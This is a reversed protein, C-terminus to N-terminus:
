TRSYVGKQTSTLTAFIDDWGEPTWLYVELGPVAALLTLWIRQEDTVQRGKLSRKLEAFIIRPPKLLVLDPFGFHGDMRTVWTGRKTMAPRFHAVRWGSLKALDIVRRLLDQETITM